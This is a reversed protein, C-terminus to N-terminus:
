SDFPPQPDCEFDDGQVPRCHAPYGHKRWVDVIKLRRIEDKWDDHNNILGVREFLLTNTRTDQAWLQEYIELLTEVDQISAASVWKWLNSIGEPYAAGSQRNNIFAEMSQYLPEDIDVDVGAKIAAQFSERAADFNKQFLYERMLIMYPFRLKDNLLTAKRVTNIGEQIRGQAFLMRSLTVHYIPALPDLQAAKKAMEEGRKFYGLELFSQGAIDLVRANNPSLELAKIIEDLGEQYEFQYFHFVSKIAHSEADDPQLEIARKIASLGAERWLLVENVTANPAYSEMISYIAALERWAPAYDVDEAVTQQLLLNALRLNEHGRTRVLERGKIFHDYAAFNQTRTAQVVDINIGVEAALTRTIEAAIQEQIDFIDTLERIYTESWLHVGNADNLQATVKIRNGSKSISGELVHQVNLKQAIQPIDDDKGKFSFSSTRGTVVMGGTKVLLNLIEDSIGDAFYEQDQEPSFDSFALVAISPLEGETVTLDDPTLTSRDYLLGLVIIVLFSIIIYNIKQSTQQAISEEPKVEETRVVGEPTLEYAWAFFLAFPLGIIGIYVVISNLTEPLNLAPVAVDTVQIVIWGLALYAIGVKVVNRRKLEALFEQL